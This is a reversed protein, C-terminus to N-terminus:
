VLGKEQLVQLVFQENTNFGNRKVLGTGLSGIRGGSLHSLRHAQHSLFGNM